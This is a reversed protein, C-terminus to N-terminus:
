VRSVRSGLGYPTCTAHEIDTDVSMATSCPWSRRVVEPVLPVFPVVLVLVPESRMTCNAAESM